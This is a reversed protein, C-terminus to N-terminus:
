RPGREPRRPESPAWIPDTTGTALSERYLKVKITIVELCASLAAIQATMHDQHQLLIALREEENGPGQRVLEAYRRIAALPMSSSRLKICFELWELDQESYTRRGDATRQVPSALLGQREYFRLAHVSLGTRAAVKGITLGPATTTM